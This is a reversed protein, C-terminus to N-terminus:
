AHREWVCAAAEKFCVGGSYHMIKGTFNTSRGRVPGEGIRLRCFAGRDGEIQRALPCVRRYQRGELEKRVHEVNKRLQGVVPGLKSFFELPARVERGGERGGRSGAWASDSPLSTAFDGVLLHV